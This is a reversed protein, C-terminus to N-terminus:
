IRKKAFQELPTLNQHNKPRKPIPRCESNEMCIHGVRTISLSLSLQYHYHYYHYHYNIIIIILLTPRLQRIDSNWFVAWFNHFYVTNRLLIWQINSFFILFEVCAGCKFFSVSFAKFFWIQLIKSDKQLRQFDVMVTSQLLSQLRRSCTCLLIAIHLMLKHHAIVNYM